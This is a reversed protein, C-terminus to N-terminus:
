ETLPNLKRTQHLNHLFNLADKMGWAAESLALQETTARDIAHSVFDYEELPVYPTDGNPREGSYYRDNITHWRNHCTSCIRHVNGVFNSLTNKDPGHHIDKALGDLCGVIPIVGGGAAVLGRWECVMPYGPANEKPIPYLKAARKRGTSQLDRVDAAAKIQGGREKKDDLGSSGVLVDRLNSPAATFNDQNCCCGMFTNGEFEREYGQTCEWHFGVACASCAM